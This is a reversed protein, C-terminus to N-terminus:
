SDDVKEIHKEGFLTKIIVYRKYANTILSESLTKM